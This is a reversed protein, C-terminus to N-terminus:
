LPIFNRKLFTQATEDQLWGNDSFVVICDTRSLVDKDEKAKSKGKFMITITNQMM